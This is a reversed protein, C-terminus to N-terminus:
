SVPLKELGVDAPGQTNIVVIDQPCASLVVIVDTLAELTIYDGQQAPSPAFELAGAATWPINMFLNLPSPM